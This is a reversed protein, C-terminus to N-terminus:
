CSTMEKPGRLAALARRVRSGALLGSAGAAVITRFLAKRDHKLYDLNACLNWRNFFYRAPLNRTLRRLPGGATRRTMLSNPADRYYLRLADNVCLARYKRAVTYWVYSEPVYTGRLVEAAPFPTERLVRTRLCGWKEGRVRLLYALELNHSVMPSRPFPNGVIEGTEPDRCLVNVGSFSPRDAEPISLWHARFRELAEPVFADDSDAPVFLEGRALAVGRNWAIHKGGNEQRALQVPFPAQAAYTRLLDGVGDTSGDDVVVWEFDRCTQACLSDWVRGITDRRNFVPTFVTFLM